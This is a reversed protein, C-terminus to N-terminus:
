VRLGSASGPRSPTSAPADQATTMPIKANPTSSTLPYAHNARAPAPRAAAATNAIPEVRRPGSGTESTSAPAATLANRPATVADIMTRSESM